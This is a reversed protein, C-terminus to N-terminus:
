LILSMLCECNIHGPPAVYGTNWPQAIPIAGEDENDQCKDCVNASQCYWAKRVGYRLGWGKRRQEFFIRSGEYEANSKNRKKGVAKKKSLAAFMVGFAQGTTNVISHSAFNARLRTEQQLEALLYAPAGTMGIELCGKGISYSGINFLSSQLVQRLNAESNRLQEATPEQGRYQKLENYMKLELQRIQPAVFVDTFPNPTITPM